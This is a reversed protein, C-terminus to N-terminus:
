ASPAPPFTPPVASRSAPSCTSGPQRTTPTTRRTTSSSPSAAEGYSRSTVELGAPHTPAAPMGAGTVADMVVAALDGGDLKTSVYWATGTGFSTAPSPRAPPPPGDQHLTSVVSATTPHIEESWVTGAAGNGLTWSRTRACRCSNTSRWAWFTGSADRPPAPAARHGNADVIGSFYSVMLHGGGSRLPGPEGSRGRGGPLPGAGPGPRLRFPRSGPARLGRVRGPEVAVSYFAEIRERHDLESSPRWELDQAWFSEVDWLIAVRANVTSGKVPSLKRLDDGLDLVERWIRSGTGAHPLMASHFKEAGYRSARFQFFMVADAGRAVHSLSNRALEGPRKAINRGQWNVAGTSHEM